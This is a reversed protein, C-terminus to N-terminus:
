VLAAVFGNEGGDDVVLVAGDVAEDVEVGVVVVSFLHILNDVLYLPRCSFVVDLPLMSLGFDGLWSNEFM